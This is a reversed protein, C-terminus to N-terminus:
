PLSCPRRRPKTWPARSPRRRPSTTSRVFADIVPYIRAFDYDNLKRRFIRPRTTEEPKIAQYTRLMEAFQDSELFRVPETNKLQELSEPLQAM